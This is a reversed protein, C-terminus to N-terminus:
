QREFYAHDTIFYTRIYGEPSVVVFEGTPDLYYLDDGDEAQLKHEADPNAIVANAAALYEDANATGTEWGHKDFHQQLKEETRFALHSATASDQDARDAPSACGPLCLAFSLFAALLFVALRRFNAPFPRSSAPSRM